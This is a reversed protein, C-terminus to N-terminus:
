SKRVSEKENLLIKRQFNNLSELIKDLNNLKKFYECCINKDVTHNKDDADNSIEHAEENDLSSTSGKESKGTSYTSKKCLASCPIKAYTDLCSKENILDLESHVSSIQPQNLIQAIEFAHASEGDVFFREYYKREVPNTFNFNLYRIKKNNSNIEKKTNHSDIVPCSKQNEPESMLNYNAYVQSFSKVFNQCPSMNKLDSLASEEAEKTMDCGLLYNVVNENPPKKLLIEPSNTNATILALCPVKSFHNEQAHDDSNFESVCKNKENALKKEKFNQFKNESIEARDYSCQKPLAKKNTHPILTKTKQTVPKCKSNQSTKLLCASKMHKKASGFKKNQMLDISIVKSFDNLRQIQPFIHNLLEQNPVDLNEARKNIYNNDDCNCSKSNTESRDPLSPTKKYTNIAQFKDILDYTTKVSDLNVDFSKDSSLQKECGIKPTKKYKCGRTKLVMQNNRNCNAQKGQKDGINKKEKRDNSDIGLASDLKKLDNNDGSEQSNKSFNVIIKIEGIADGQYDFLPLQVSDSTDTIDVLNKFFASALPINKDGELIILELVECNKLYAKFLNISTRIEYSACHSYKEEDKLKRIRNISQM